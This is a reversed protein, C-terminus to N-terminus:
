TRTSPSSRARSRAAVRSRSRPCARGPRHEAAGPQEEGLVQLRPLQDGGDPGHRARDDDARDPHRRLWAAAHEFSYLSTAAAHPLDARRVGADLRHRARRVRLHVEPHRRESGDFSWEDVMCGLFSLADVTGATDAPHGEPHWRRRPTGSSTSRSTRRARCWTSTSTGHAADLLVGLGQDARGRHGAAARGPRRSAATTWTPSRGSACARATRGTRSFDLGEDDFELARNPALYTGYTSEPPLEANLSVPTSM